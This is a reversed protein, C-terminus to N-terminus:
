QMGGAQGALIRLKASELLGILTLETGTTVVQGIGVTSDLNLSLILLSATNGAAVTQRVLDLLELLKAKREGNAKNPNLNIINDTM